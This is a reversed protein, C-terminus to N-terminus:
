RKVRAKRTSEIARAEQRALFRMVKAEHELTSASGELSGRRYDTPLYGARRRRERAKAAMDKACFRLTYPDLPERKGM